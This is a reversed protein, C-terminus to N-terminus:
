IPGFYVFLIEESDYCLFAEGLSKIFNFTTRINCQSRWILGHMCCGCSILVQLLKLNIIILANLNMLVSYLTTQSDSHFSPFPSQITGFYFVFSRENHRKRTRPNITQNWSSRREDVGRQMFIYVAGKQVYPLIIYTRRNKM